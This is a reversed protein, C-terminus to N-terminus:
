ADFFRGDTKQFAKPGGASALSAFDDAASFAAFGTAESAEALLVCHSSFFFCNGM